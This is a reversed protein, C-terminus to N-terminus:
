KVVINLLKGPVFIKKVIQKDSILKQIRESKEIYQLVDEESVDAPMVCKDKVKGNIQIVFEIENEKALEPDYEPWPQLHISAKNGFKEWIEETLHPAFPSLLVLFKDYVEQGVEKQNHMENVMIMLASVATNFRFENIDETVKKITKHILHEDSKINKKVKDSLSNVKDLFRRVGVIGKTDWPIAEAFPGMFMEYMRM